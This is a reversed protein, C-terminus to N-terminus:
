PEMPKATFVSQIQTSSTVRLDKSTVSLGVDGSAEGYREGVLRKLPVVLTSTTRMSAGTLKATSTPEVSLDQERAKMVVESDLTAADDTLGRVRLTEIREWRVGDLRPRTTIQWSAGVGVAEAPFRVVEREIALKTLDTVALRPEDVGREIPEVVGAPTMWWEAKKGRQRTLDGALQARMKPDVAGDPDLTADEIRSSVRVDGNPRKEIVELALRMRETPFETKQTTTELVTSTLAATVTAKSTLEARARAGADLQYRLVRRPESGPELVKVSPESATTPAQPAGCAALAILARRM